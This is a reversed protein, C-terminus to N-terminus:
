KVLKMYAKRINLLSTDQGVGLIKYYDKRLDINKFEPNRQGKFNKFGFSITKTITRMDRFM